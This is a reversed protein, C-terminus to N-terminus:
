RNHYAYRQMDLPYRHHVYAAGVIVITLVIARSLGTAGLARSKTHLYGASLLAVWATSFSLGALVDSLFHAGLYLRSFAISLVVIAAFVIVGLRRLSREECAVMVTLFGYLATTVAVHGSPFSYSDWGSYLDIPRTVRLTLKMLFSFISPALVAFCLYLATRRNRQWILWLLAVLTVATTVVWDGLETIAVMVRDLPATRVSQLAHFIADDIRVLPDRNVVDELVAFFAILAVGALLGMLALRRPERGESGLFSLLLNLVLRRNIRRESLEGPHPDTPLSSM